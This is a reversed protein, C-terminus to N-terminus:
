RDSEVEAPSPRYEMLGLGHVAVIAGVVLLLVPGQNGRDAGDAPRRMAWIAGGIMAAAIAVEVIQLPTM